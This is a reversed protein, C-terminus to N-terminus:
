KVTPKPMFTSAVDSVPISFGKKVLAAEVNTLLETEDKTYLRTDVKTNVDIRATSRQLSGAINVPESVAFGLRTNPDPRSLDGITSMICTVVVSDASQPGDAWAQETYPFLLDKSIIEFIIPFKLESIKMKKVAMPVGDQKAVAILYLTADPNDFNSDVQSATELGLPFNKKDQQYDSSIMVAGRAILEGPKYLLEQKVANSEANEYRARMSSVQQTQYLKLQEAIGDAHVPQVQMLKFQDGLSHASAPEPIGTLLPLSLTFPAFFKRFSCFSPPNYAYSRILYLILIVSTTKTM